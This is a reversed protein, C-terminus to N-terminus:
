FIHSSSHLCIICRFINMDYKSEILQWVCPYFSHLLSKLLVKCWRSHKMTCLFACTILCIRLYYLMHLCTVYYAIGFVLNNLDDSYVLYCNYFLEFWVFIKVYYRASSSYIQTMERALDSITKHKVWGWINGSTLVFKVQWEILELDQRSTISCLDWLAGTTYGM